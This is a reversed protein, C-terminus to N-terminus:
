IVVAQLNNKWTNKYLYKKQIHIYIYLYIRIPLLMQRLMRLQMKFCFFTLLASVVFGSGSSTESDRQVHSLLSSNGKLSICLCNVLLFTAVPSDHVGRPQEISMGGICGSNGPLPVLACSKRNRLERLIITIYHKFHLLHATQLIPAEVPTFDNLVRARALNWRYAFAQCIPGGTTWQGAAHAHASKRGADKAKQM